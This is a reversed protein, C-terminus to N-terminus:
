TKISNVEGRFDKTMVKAQPLTFHLVYKSIYVSNHITEFYLYTQIKKRGTTFTHLHSSNVIMSQLTSAKKTVIIKFRSNPVLVNIMQISEVKILKFCGGM